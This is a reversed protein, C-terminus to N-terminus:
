KSYEVWAPTWIRAEIQWGTRSFKEWRNKFAAIDSRPCYCKVKPCLCIQEQLKCIEQCIYTGSPASVTVQPQNFIVIQQIYTCHFIFTVKHRLHLSVRTKYIKRDIHIFKQINHGRLAVSCDTTENISVRLSVELLLRFKAWINWM